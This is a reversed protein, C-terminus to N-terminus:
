LGTAQAILTLAHSHFILYRGARQLFRLLDVGDRKEILNDLLKTDSPCPMIQGKAILWM